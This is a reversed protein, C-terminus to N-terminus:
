SCSQARKRVKRMMENTSSSILGAMSSDKSRRNEGGNRRNTGTVVCTEENTDPPGGLEAGDTTLDVYVDDDVNAATWPLPSRNISHKVPIPELRYTEQITETQVHIETQTHDPFAFLGANHEQQHDNGKLAFLSFRKTLCPLLSRDPPNLPPSSLDRHLYHRANLSGLFSIGFVKPLCMFFASIHYQPAALFVVMFVAYFLTPAFLSELGIIILKKSLKDSESFAQITTRPSLMAWGITFTIIVNAVIATGLWVYAAVRATLYEPDFLFTSMVPAKAKVIIISVLSILLLPLTTLLVWRARNAFIYARHAFLAAVPTQMCATMLLFTSSWRFNFFNRYNDFGFAFLNFMWRSSLATQVTGFILIYWVLIRISMKETAWSLTFWQLIQMLLLGFAFGDAAYGLLYPGFALGQNSQYLSRASAELQLDSANVPVNM